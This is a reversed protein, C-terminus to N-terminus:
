HIQVQAALSLARLRPLGLEIASEEASVLTRLAGDADDAMIALRALVSHCAWTVEIVGGERSAQPFSNTLLLRAEEMQDAEYLAEALVASLLRSTYSARGMSSNSYGLGERYSRIALQLEGQEMSLMGSVIYTWAKLYHASCEKALQRANFCASQGLDYEFTSQTSHALACSVIATWSPDDVPRERLWQASLARSQTTDDGGGAVLCRMMTLRAAIINPAGDAHHRGSQKIWKEVLRLQQDSDEARSSFALSWAYDLRVQPWRDLCEEPLQTVWNLLTIHDGENHLLSAARESILSAAEDFDKGALAYRIADHHSGTHRAFSAAARYADSLGAPDMAAFRSKLFEGFLHHYRYWGRERDLPILFLGKREIEDLLSQSRQSGTIAACWDANLRDLISTRLLFDRVEPSQQSLVAEALFDAVDRNGGGFREIEREPDETNDLILSAFQLGAVWGETHEAITSIAVDSLALGRYRTLFEGAEMRSFSLNETTILTLQRRMKLRSVSIDFLQRSAVVFQLNEPSYTWLWQMISNVMPNDIFHYDDLFCVLPKGLVDIDNVLATLVAEVALNSGTSM